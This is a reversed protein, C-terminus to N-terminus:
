LPQPRGARVYAMIEEGEELMVLLVMAKQLLSIRLDHPMGRM